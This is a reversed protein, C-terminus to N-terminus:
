AMGPQELQANANIQILIGLKEMPAFSAPMDMGLNDLLVSAALHVLIGFWETPADILVILEMGNNHLFAFLALKDM